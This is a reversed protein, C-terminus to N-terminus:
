AKRRLYCHYTFPSNGYDTLENDTFQIALNNAKAFDVFFEQPYFLKPLDKYREDYDPIASRRYALCAEKKAADYVDLVGLTRKTKALMNTLVEEAYDFNAFYAFVSNAFVADYKIDTPLNKAEDAICERLVDSAIVQRLINLLNESYDLAGVTFEDQAFLYLNAGAGAGVEFVSDGASLGLERKTNEYQRLLSEVPLGGELDFGDIRKLESFVAKTDAPDIGALGNQRKDWINKWNNTTM